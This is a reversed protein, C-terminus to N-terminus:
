LDLRYKEQKQFRLQKLTPSDCDCAMICPDDQYTSQAFM